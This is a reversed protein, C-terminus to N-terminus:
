TEFLYPSHALIQPVMNFDPTKSAVSNDVIVNGSGAPVRTNGATKEVKGGCFHGERRSGQSYRAGIKNM